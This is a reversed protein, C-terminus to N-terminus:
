FIRDWFSPAVSPLPNEPDVDTPTNTDAKAGDPSPDIQEAHVILRNINTGPPDCTFLTVTPKATPRLVSVDTPKVIKRATTVRYTYRTGEFNLYFIDGVELRKLNVFVYKWGGSNFVNNSSHGGIVTNGVTGPDPTNGLRVVGRDLAKQYSPEDVRPEDYIVPAELGIKPIILRPEPGVVVSANPEVIVPDTVIGGPTIYQRMAGFIVQNYNVFMFIVAVSLAALAPKFHSSGKVKDARKQITGRVKQRLEQAIQQQESEQKSHTQETSAIDTSTVNPQTATHQSQQQWWGTYYRHFYQRYYNQWATHYQQWDYQQNHMTHGPAAKAAQGTTDHHKPETQQKKAEHEATSYTRSVQERAYAAARENDQSPAQRTPWQIPPRAPNPRIPEPTRSTPDPHITRNM